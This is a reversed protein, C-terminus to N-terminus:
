KSAILAVYWGLWSEFRRLFGLKSGPEFNVQYVGCRRVRFGNRSVLGAFGSKSYLRVYPKTDVGDAGHEITALVGRVGIRFISFNLIARLFLSLTHISFLHYVALQVMGGPKLVRNIEALVVEIEPIHHVVGFSYVTDFYGDPFPLKTADAKSVDVAYGELGFNQRTLEMHRDTIDAGYCAAGSRAFQKLDTGLGIGIELVKKNKQDFEFFSHQWYQQRYREAEIAAFFATDEQVTGDTGCPTENWLTAANVRADSDVSQFLEVDKM